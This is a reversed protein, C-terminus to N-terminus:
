GLVKRKLDAPAVGVSLNRGAFVVMRYLERMNHLADERGLEYAEALAAGMLDGTGRCRECGAASCYPCFAIAARWSAPLDREAVDPM